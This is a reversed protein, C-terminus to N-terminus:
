VVSDKFACEEYLMKKTFIHDSSHCSQEKIKCQGQLIDCIGVLQGGGEGGDIWSCGASLIKKVSLLM